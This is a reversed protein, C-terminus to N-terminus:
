MVQHRGVAEELHADLHVQGDMPGLSLDCVKSGCTELHSRWEARKRFRAVMEVVVGAQSGDVPLRGLISQAALSMAVWLLSLQTAVETHQAVVFCM